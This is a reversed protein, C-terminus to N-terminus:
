GVQNDLGPPRRFQNRPQHREWWDHATDHTWADDSITAALRESVVVASAPRVAPDKALCEMILADLAPPIRFESHLGPPMPADQVQAVATAVPTDGTFLHQGTLM